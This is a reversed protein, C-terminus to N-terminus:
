DVGIVAKVNKGKSQYAKIKEEVQNPDITYMVPDIDVFDPTAGTYIVSNATALFTLPTTVVIDGPKWGLALGTLHLAATGSSVACAHNAGFYKQLDYEFTEVAVGQTLWDGKLVEIVADIDSQDITQKGYSIM